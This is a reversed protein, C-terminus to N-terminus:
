FESTSSFDDEERLDERVKAFQQNVWELAFDSVEISYGRDIYKSMRFNLRDSLSQKHRLWVRTSKKKVCLSDFCLLKRGAFWNKCFGFDFDDCCSDVHEEEIVSLLEMRKGEVMYSNVVVCKYFFSSDSDPEKTKLSTFNLGNLFDAAQIRGGPSVFIFDVDSCVSVDEANLIALLFGGTLFLRGDDM